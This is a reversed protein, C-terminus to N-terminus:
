QKIEGWTVSLKGSSSVSLASEIGNNMLDNIEAESLAQRLIIVEDLIGGMFRGTHSMFHLPADNTGVDFDAGDMSAEEVGDIYLRITGGERTGVLHHWEDDNVLTNSAIHFNASAADRLFLSMNGTAAKAQDAYYLAYWPLVQAPHYNKAIIMPPADEPTTILLWCALTFDVGEPFELSDDDPVEVWGDAGDFSLAGGFKGDATWEVGGMINGDNGNESLDVATDGEDSDFLWIGAIDEIAGNAVSVGLTICFILSILIFRLNIKLM